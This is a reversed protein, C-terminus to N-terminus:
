WWIKLFEAFREDDEATRKGPEKMYTNIGVVFMKIRFVPSVRGDPIAWVNRFASYFKVVHIEM